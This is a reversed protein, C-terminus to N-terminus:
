LFNSLLKAGVWEPVEEGVGVDARVNTEAAGSRRRNASPCKAVDQAVVQAQVLQLGVHELHGVIDVVRGNRTAQHGTYLAKKQTVSTRTLFAIAYTLSVKELM